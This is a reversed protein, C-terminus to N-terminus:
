QRNFTFESQQVIVDEPSQIKYFARWRKSMAYELIMIAQQPDGNSLQQLNKLQMMECRSRIQIGHEEQLYEKWFEWKEVVDLTFFKPFTVNLSKIPSIFSGVNAASKYVVEWKKLWANIKKEHKRNPKIVSMLESSAKAYEQM